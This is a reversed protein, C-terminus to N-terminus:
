AQLEAQIDALTRTLASTVAVPVFPNNDVNQLLPNSEIFELYEDIIDLADDVREARLAPEEANGASDLADLLRTDLVRHPDYLAEAKAKIEAFDPEDKSEALITAELKELEQRMKKRAQDWALRAKAYSVKTGEAKAAAPQQEPAPKPAAPPPPAPPPPPAAPKAAAAPPAKAAEPKAAGQPDDDVDSEKGEIVLIVKTFGGIGLTKLMKELKSKLGSVKPGELVLLLVGPRTKDFSTVGFTLASEKIITRVQVALSKGSKTVDFFIRAEDPGKGVGAGFNLPKMKVHGLMTKLYATYKAPDEMGTLVPEEGAKRQEEAKKRTEEILKPFKKFTELTNELDKVDVPPKKPPAKITKDLEAMVKKLTLVLGDLAKVATAHLAESPKESLKALAIETGQLAKELEQASALGEPQQKKWWAVSIEPNAGKQM